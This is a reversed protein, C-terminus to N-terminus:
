KFREVIAAFTPRAAPDYAWCEQMLAFVASPCRPPREPRAGGLVARVVDDNSLAAYPEAGNSFVEWMTVGFAWVDSAHSWEQRAIVEPPTWRVPLSRLLARRSRAYTERALGFDGVQACM